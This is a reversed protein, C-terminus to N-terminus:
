EVAMVEVLFVLVAGAPIPGNGADGYGLDAPLVLQRRGGVRMGPVGLDWGRIVEGRGPRFTFPEDSPGNQDFSTGDPLTGYYHVSVRQGAKVAPGEGVTLDKYYYGAESKTMTTLDIELSRAFTITELPGGKPNQGCGILGGALSAAALWRVIM